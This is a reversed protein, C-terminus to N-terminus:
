NVGPRPSVGEGMDGPLSDWGESRVGYAHERLADTEALNGRPARVRSVFEPWM